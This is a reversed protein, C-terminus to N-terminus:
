FPTSFFIVNVEPPPPPLLSYQYVRDNGRGIVYMKDGDSNFTVDTPIGDETGVAKFVEDYDATGVNWPTDLTYQYVADTAFGVMYMKSGDSSFTIGTPNGDEAIISKFISAYSATGVDWATSLTYQYVTDDNRYLVYMKTGDSSFDLGFTFDDETVAKSKAYGATGVEWPTGVTYQDVSSDAKGMIYMKSGDSSFTVKYPSTDETGVAKSAEDDGATGINWPTSLAYQYVTDSDYGVVYMKSGDSSFDLGYPQIEETGIAKFVEDYVATGIDWPTAFCNVGFILILTLFLPLLYKKM